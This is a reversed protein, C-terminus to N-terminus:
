HGNPHRKPDGVTMTDIFTGDARRLYAVDGTNNWVQASRGAFLLLHGDDTWGSTGHGTFVYASKGAPLMLVTNSTTAPFEYIHVNQQTATYDTLKLGTLGVASMGDNAVQVWEGRADNGRLGVHCIHLGPM